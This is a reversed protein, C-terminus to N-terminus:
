FSTLLTAASPALHISLMISLGSAALTGNKVLSGERRARIGFFTARVGGRSPMKADLLAERVNRLEELMPHPMQPGDNAVSTELKKPTASRSRPQQKAPRETSFAPRDPRVPRPRRAPVEPALESTQEATETDYRQLLRDLDSSDAHLGPRSPDLGPLADVMGNILEVTAPRMSTKWLMRDSMFRANIRDALLRAIAGQHSAIGVGAEADVAAGVGITLCTEYRGPLKNSLALIIRANDLDFVAIDEHDMSLGCDRAPCDNLATKLDAVLAPFALDPSSRFLLQAITSTIPDTM